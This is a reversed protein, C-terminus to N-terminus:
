VNSRLFHYEVEPSTTCGPKWRCQWLSGRAHAPLACADWSVPSARPCGDPRWLKALFPRHGLLSRCAKLATTPVTCPLMGCCRFSVTDRCEPLQIRGCWMGSPWPGKRHGMYGYGYQRMPGSQAGYTQLWLVSKKKKKHSKIELHSFYYSFM